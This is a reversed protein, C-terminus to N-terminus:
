EVYASVGIFYGQGDLLGLGVANCGTELFEFETIKGVMMSMRHFKSFM